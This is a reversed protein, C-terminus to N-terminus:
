WLVTRFRTFRSTYYCTLSVVGAACSAGSRLHINCTLFPAFAKPQQEAMRDGTNTLASPAAKLLHLPRFLALLWSFGSRAPKRGGGGGGDGGGGGTVVMRSRAVVSCAVQDKTSCLNFYMGRFSWVFSSEPKKIGLDSQASYCLSFHIENILSFSFM